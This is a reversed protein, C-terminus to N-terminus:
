IEGLMNRSIHIGKSNKNIIRNHIEIYKDSFVYIHKYNKIIYILYTLTNKISNMTLKDDILDVRIMSFGNQIFYKDKTHDSLLQSEENTFHQSEDVEIIVDIFDNHETNLRLFIDVRYANNNIKFTREREIIKCFTMIYKNKMIEMLLKDSNDNKIHPLTKFTLYNIIYQYENRLQVLKFSNQCKSILKVNSKSQILDYNLSKIDPTRKILEIYMIINNKIYKKNLEITEHQIMNIKDNEEKDSIYKKKYKLNDVCLKKVKKLLSFKLKMKDTDNLNNIIKNANNILYEKDLLHLHFFCHGLKRVFYGCYICKDRNLIEFLRINFLTEIINEFYDKYTLNRYVFKDYLINPDKCFADFSDNIKKQYTNIGRDNESNFNSDNDSMDSM